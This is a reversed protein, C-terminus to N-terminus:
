PTTRIHAQHKLQARNEKGYNMPGNEPRSRPSLVLPISLDMSKHHFSPYYVHHSQAQNVPTLRSLNLYKQSKLAVVGIHYNLQSVLNSPLSTLAFYQGDLSVWQESESSIGSVHNRTIAPIVSTNTISPLICPQKRLYYIDLIKKWGARKVWLKRRRREFLAM